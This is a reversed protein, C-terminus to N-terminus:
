SKFHGAFVNVSVVYQKFGFRYMGAYTSMFIVIVCAPRAVPIPGFISLFLETYKLLVFM